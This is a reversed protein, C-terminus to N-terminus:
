GYVWVYCKECRGVTFMNLTQLCNMRGQLRELRPSRCIWLDVIHKASGFSFWTGEDRVLFM